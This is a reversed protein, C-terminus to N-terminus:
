VTRYFCKETLVFKMRIDHAEMPVHLLVDKEYCIGVTIPTMSQMFLYRDYYAKGRGLRGGWRDFAIGPIVMLDLPPTEDPCDKPEAIEFHNKQMETWARVRIMKMATSTLIRPFYVEKKEEIAKKFLM